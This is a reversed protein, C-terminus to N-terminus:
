SILHETVNALKVEQINQIRYKIRLKFVSITVLHHKFTQKIM